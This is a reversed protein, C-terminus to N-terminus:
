SVVTVAKWWRARQPCQCLVSVSSASSVATVWCDSCPTPSHRSYRSSVPSPHSTARSPALAWLSRATSITSLSSSHSRMWRRECESFLCFYHTHFAFYILCLIISVSNLACLQVILIICFHLGRGGHQQHSGTRETHAHCWPM